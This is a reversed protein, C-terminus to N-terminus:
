GKKEKTKWAVTQEYRYSTDLTMDLVHAKFALRDVLASTVMSDGFVDSWRDFAYNTTIMIPGKNYRVSILNFLLESESKDFSVYGLEDLIVLDYREFKRKYATFTSASVAEHLEIILDPVSAFLVSRGSLCAEIGLAIALHTKGSGPTGILIVNETNDIFDLTILENIERQMSSNYKDRKFDAIYKKYPFKARRLRDKNGNERRLEAEKQLLQDLFDQYDTKALRAEAVEEKYHKATYPLKLYACNEELSM